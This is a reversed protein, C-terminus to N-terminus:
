RVKIKRAREAEEEALKTSMLQKLLDDEEKVLKKYLQEMVDAKLIKTQTRFPINTIGYGGCNCIFGM